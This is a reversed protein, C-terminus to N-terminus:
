RGAADFHARVRASDLAYDYIALEDLAGVFYNGSCECNPGGLTWPTRTPPIASPVGNQATQEGDVFLRLEAGDFSAFVHHWEGLAVASNQTANSGFTSGERWREFAVDLGSVRLTYGQRPEYTQHDVVLGFGAQGDYSSPKAWIELSFASNDPFDLAAPMSIVSDGRFSVATDPDGIIAGLEGQRVGAPPYTGDYAALEDKAVSTSRDGLRLYLVPADARVEKLYSGPGLQVDSECAPALALAAVAILTAGHSDSCEHRTM